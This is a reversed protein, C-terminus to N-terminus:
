SKLFPIWKVFSDFTKKTLWFNISETQNYNETMGFIPFHFLNIFGLM